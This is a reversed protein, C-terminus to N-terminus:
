AVFNLFENNTLTSADAVDLTAIPTVVADALLGAGSLGAATSVLAITTTDVGNDFAAFFADGASIIPATGFARFDSQFAAASAYTANSLLINKNAGAGSMTFAASTNLATTVAFADTAGVSAADDTNVLDTVQSLLELNTHSFTGFDDTTVVFGTITDAGLTGGAGVAATMLVDDSGAGLSIVDAGTGGTVTDNAAAGTLTDAGLSGILVDAGDAGTINFKTTASNASNIVVLNETGADGNSTLSVTQATTEAIAAFTVNTVGADATGVIALANTIRDFDATALGGGAAVTITDTGTGGDISDLATFNSATFIISDNGAGAIITDAGAASEITDNGANGLLSDSGAGGAISDAKASGHLTAATAGGDIDFGFNGTAATMNVDVGNLVNMSVAALSKNNSTAATAVYDGSVTIAAGNAAASVTFVDSVGGVGLDRIQTSTTTATVNFTDIGAGGVLSDAAATSAAGDNLVDGGSGGTLLSVVDGNASGSMTVGAASTYAAASINLVRAAGGGNTHTADFSRFGSTQAQASFTHTFDGALSAEILSTSGYAFTEATVNDLSTSDVSGAVTMDFDALAGILAITDTGKEGSYTDNINLQAFAANDFTIKDDDAGARVIRSTGATNGGTINIIDAGARGFITDQGADGSIVDAGSGGDIREDNDGAATTITDKGAGGMITHAGSTAGASLAITDNGDAAAGDRTADETAQDGMILLTSTSSAAINDNGAGGFITHKANTGTQDIDDNGKDGKVLLAAGSINIDDVGLGGRVTAGSVSASSITLVDNGGDGGVYLGTATGTVTINDENNDGKVLGGANALTITDRQKGGRITSNTVTGTSTITDDDQDGGIFANTANVLTIQDNGSRGFLQGGDFTRTALQTITDSGDGGNISSNLADALSVTDNGGKLDVLVTNAEGSLTVNDNDAGADITISEVGTAASVTDAGALGEIFQSKGELTFTDALETGKLTTLDSSTAGPITTIAV